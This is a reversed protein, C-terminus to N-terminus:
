NTSNSVSAALGKHSLVARMAGVAISNCMAVSGMLCNLTSFLATEVMTKAIELKLFENVEVITCVTSCTILSRTKHCINSPKVTKIKKKQALCCM